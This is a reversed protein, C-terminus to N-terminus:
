PCTIVIVYHASMYVIKLTYRYNFSVQVLSLGPSASYPILTPLVKTALLNHTLGFKKDGLM